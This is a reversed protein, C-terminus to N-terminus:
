ALRPCLGLIFINKQALRCPAQKLVGSSTEEEDDNEDEDEIKQPIELVVVLAARPNRL